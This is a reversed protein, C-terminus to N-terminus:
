KIHIEKWLSEEYIWNPHWSERNHKTNILSELTGIAYGEKCLLKKWQEYCQTLHDKKWKEWTQNDKISLFENRLEEFSKKHNTPKKPKGLLDEIDKHSFGKEKATECIESKIKERYTEVFNREENAIGVFFVLSPDKACIEAKEYYRKATRPDTEPESARAIVNGCDCEIPNDSTIQFGKKCDLCYFFKPVM